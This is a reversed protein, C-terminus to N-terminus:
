SECPSELPVLETVDRCDHRHMQWRLWWGAHRVAAVGLDLGKRAVEHAGSM